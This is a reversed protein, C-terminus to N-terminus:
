SNWKGQSAKTWVFISLFVALSTMILGVFAICAWIYVSMILLMIAGLESILGSKMVWGVALIFFGLMIFFMFLITKNLTDVPCFLIDFTDQSVEFPLDTFNLHLTFLESQETM